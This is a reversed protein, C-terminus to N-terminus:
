GKRFQRAAYDLTRMRRRQWVWSVGVIIGIWFLASLSLKWDQFWEGEGAFLACLLPVSIAVLAFAGKVKSVTELRM